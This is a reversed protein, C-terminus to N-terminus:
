NKSKEGKKDAKCPQVRVAFIVVEGDKTQCRTIIPFFM